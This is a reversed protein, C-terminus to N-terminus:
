GRFLTRAGEISTAGVLSPPEMGPARVGIGVGHPELEGQDGSDEYADHGACGAGARALVAAGVTVWRMSRFRDIRTSTLRTLCALPSSERRADAGSPM